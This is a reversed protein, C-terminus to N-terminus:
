PKAREQPVVPSCWTEVYFKRPALLTARPERPAPFLSKAAEREDDTLPRYDFRDGRFTNDRVSWSLRERTM